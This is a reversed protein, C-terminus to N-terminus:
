TLSSMSDEVDPNMKEKLRNIVRNNTTLSNAIGNALLIIISIRFLKNALLMFWDNINLPTELFIIALYIGLILFFTRLPNYFPNTKIEKKNKVKKKFMRILIYALKNRMIRFILYIAIAIGIDNILTLTINTQIWDIIQNIQEM